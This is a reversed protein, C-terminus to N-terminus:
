IECTFLGATKVATELQCTGDGGQQVEDPIKTEEQEREEAQQKHEGIKKRAAHIENWNYCRRIYPGFENMEHWFYVRDGLWQKAIKYVGRIYPSALSRCSIKSSFRLFHECRRPLHPHEGVKFDIYSEESEANVRM